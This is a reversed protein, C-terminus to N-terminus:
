KPRAEQYYSHARVDETIRLSIEEKNQIIYTSVQPGKICLEGRERVPLAEGTEVDVVKGQTNPLLIGCSGLVEDHAATMTGVPSLETM